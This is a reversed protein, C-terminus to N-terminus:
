SQTTVPGSLQDDNVRPSSHWQPWLLVTIKLMVYVNDEFFPVGFLVVVPKLRPASSKFLVTCPQEQM